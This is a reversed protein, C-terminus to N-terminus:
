QAKRTAWVAKSSTSQSFGPVFIRVPSERRDTELLYAELRRRRNNLIVSAHGFEQRLSEKLEADTAERMAADLISVQRKSARIAREYARQHQSEDYVQANSKGGYSMDNSFTRQSLGEFFPFFSHYCNWGCLGEGTGYGTSDYFDKYKRSKGSRSYVMGQWVAHSRRAGLHATVEVLDCDAEDARMLQLQATTQNLGTMLSRRAASEASSVAGSSYTLKEISKSALDSIALRLAQDSTFAGSLVQMYARDMVSAYIKGASNATSMTFNTFLGNTKVVGALMVQRYMLSSSIPALKMGAARYVLDDTGIAKTCVANFITKISSQTRGTMSAAMRVADRNLLGIEKAKQLQWAATETVTGTKVIRRAVDSLIDIELQAYLPVLEEAVDQLFSSQLGM